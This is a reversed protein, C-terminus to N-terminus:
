KDRVDEDLPAPPNQDIIMNMHKEISEKKPQEFEEADLFNLHFNSLELVRDKDLSRYRM